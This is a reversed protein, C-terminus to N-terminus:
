AVEGAMVRVKLEPPVFGNQDFWGVFEQVPTLQLWYIGPRPPAECEIWASVTEGPEIDRPLLTRNGDLVVIDRHEDLWHYSLRVPMPGSWNWPQQGANTLEVEMAFKERVEMEGIDERLAVTARFDTLPKIYAGLRQFNINSNATCALNEFSWAPYLKYAGEFHVGYNGAVEFEALKEVWHYCANLHDTGPHLAGTIWYRGPALDIRLRVEIRCIESGKSRLLYGHQRTNTGFVSRGSEDNISFGVTLDDIDENVKFWLQFLAVEGSLLVPGTFVGGTVICEIWEVLHNGFSSAVLSEKRLDEIAADGAEIQGVAIQAQQKSRIQASSAIVARRNKEYLEEAFEYLALDSRNIEELRHRVKSSVESLLKRDRTVNIRPVSEM